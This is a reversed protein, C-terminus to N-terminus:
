KSRLYSLIRLLDLFLNVVDLYLELVAAVVEDTDFKLIIRSTDYLIYGCFVVASVCSWIFIAFNNPWFLFGLGTVILGILAVFLFGGMWNFDQKTVHVYASLVTFIVACIAAAQWIIGGQGRSLYRELVCALTFGNLAAYAFLTVMNIGPKRRVALAILFVVIEAIIAPLFYQMALGSVVGYYATGATVLLTAGLLSYVKQIFAARDLLPAKSVPSPTNYISSLAESRQSTTTSQDRWRPNFVEDVQKSLAEIKELEGKDLYVGKCQNCADIVLNSNTLYPQESLNSGCRPCPYATATTTLQGPPIDSTSQSSKALEGRDLWIGNCTTCCDIEVGKKRSPFM